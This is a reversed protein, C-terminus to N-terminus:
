MRPVTLRMWLARIMQGPLIGFCRVYRMALRQPDRLARWLWEAAIRRVWLPARPQTGAIFDLGAGISVFGVSPAVTRGLASFLEQKPAGLAVFCLRAGSADVAELAARADAGDPEFDMEPAHLHVIRLDRIERELVSRAGRLTADDSGVLAVPVGQRAAIAAIPRIADSGPILTVPRGALKSMWVVPNGDATVLDHAMYAQRFAASQHLKVLHDLNMTALAFGRRQALRESVRAELGAWGPVTVRITQGKVSFDM